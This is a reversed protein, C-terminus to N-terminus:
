GSLFTATAEDRSNYSSVVIVRPPSPVSTLERCLEMGRIEGEPRPPLLGLRTRHAEALSLASAVSGAEAVVRLDPQADILTRLGFRIVPHDEVLLVSVMPEPAPM